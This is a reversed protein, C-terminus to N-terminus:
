PQKDKHTRQHSQLSKSDGFSKGCDRCKFPKEGTHLQQHRILISECSFVKGCEACKH